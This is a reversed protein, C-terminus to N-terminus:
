RLARRKRAYHARETEWDAANTIARARERILEWKAEEKPDPPLLRELDKLIVRVTGHIDGLRYELLKYTDEKQIRHYYDALDRVVKLCERIGASRSQEVDEVTYLRRSEPQEVVV